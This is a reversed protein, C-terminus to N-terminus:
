LPDVVQGAPSTWVYAGDFGAKRADGVFANAAKASEFPGVLLRNTAGMDSVQGKRGKFLEASQRAYKRWDYALAKKDRGVGLQVWIRSPHSPPAPKAKEAKAKDAKAKEADAKAKELAPDPRPKAPKIRTIDVAGAAPVGHAVPRGLDSFVAALSVPAEDAQRAPAPAVPPASAGVPALATAPAPAPAAPPPAATTVPTAAPTVRALDFGTAAVPRAAAVVPAPRAATVVPASAAVAPPPPPAAAVAPRAPVSVPRAEVVEAAAAAATEAGASQAPAPPRVLTVAPSPAPPRTVTAPAATVAAMRAGALPQPTLSALEGSAQREPRPDPPAVRTAPSATRGDRAALRAAEAERERRAKRSAKDEKRSRTAGGLPEGRPVLGADASAVRRFGGPPAFQAVRPDDRGIESARPFSGLNAAAAQQAPTLTPMYRLYPAIAASLEEPLITRTIKVAEEPQGIIALSFARTRWAAKDQDRLLPTLTAESGRRDGMIAQSLALRMTIAPDPASSLALRYYKQATENDGVLDYALGRDAAISSAAAGAREAEDFLPIAGFPDGKHVLAGALGAKVRPDRSSVQDARKFFGVAADADGMDLAANGADILADIDRPDRGLRSLAASLRLSDGSPLPQVVPRSVPAGTGAPAGARGQVQAQAAGGPLLAGLAVAVALAAAIREKRGIRTMAQPRREMALRHEM